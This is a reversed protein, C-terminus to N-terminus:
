EYRRRRAISLLLMAGFQVIASPEPIQIFQFQTVLGYPNSDDFGPGIYGSGPNIGEAWIRTTVSQQPSRSADLVTFLSKRVLFQVLLDGRSPDYHFSDEVDLILHFGTPPLSSVYSETVTGDLVITFDDGINNHFVPSATSVTTAAYAFAVQLDADIGHKKGFE